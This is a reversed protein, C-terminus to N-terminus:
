QKRLPYVHEEILSMFAAINPITYENKIGSEWYINGMQEAYRIWDFDADCHYLKVIDFGYQRQAYQITPLGEVTVGMQFVNHPRGTNRIIFFIGEAKSPNRIAVSQDAGLFEKWTFWDKKYTVDPRSPIDKPRRGSKAYELWQTKTKFGLQTAFKRADEYSRFKKKICPFPNNNGLFDNWSIFDKKYARDPRKPIRAPTNLKWWKKYQGISGLSEARVLERAKEFEYNKRKPGFPKYESPDKKKRPM